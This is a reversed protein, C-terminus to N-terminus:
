GHVKLAAAEIAATPLPMAAAECVRLVDRHTAQEVLAAYQGSSNTEAVLLMGCRASFERLADGALPWMLRPFIGGARMGSESLRKIANKAAGVTSGWSVIGVELDGEPGVVEPAPWRALLTELKRQRKRQMRTHVPGSYNPLGHEDHELGTIPHVLEPMGPYARPSVGTETIAYRAYPEPTPTALFDEYVGFRDAAERSWVVDEMRSSLFFDFLVIVPTQFAEAVEFAKLVLAYCEEVNTPALVPRPSEGSAGFIAINLDSQETKTPLGTSPGGRQCDIIVAPVEAMVGLNICEVMLCLGPGSTATACRKGAFGGGVVHGIASIEDETQVVVGGTAPLKKGLVEMIKTAPTIPYGAYLRLGADVCGQAAAENGSVISVNEVRALAVNGFDIPDAKDLERAACEWGLNFAAINTERVTESKGGFRKGIAWRFGDADLGFLWSVVGLAVINRSKAGKTAEASLDRLPVGYGIMGPQLWGAVAQDEEHYDAPRSDYIVIGNGRLSALETISHPDDLAVLCDGMTGPTLVREVSIRSHAVSKGFGRIEAPFSDFNMVHYGMGAAALNLIQGAAISGDGAAGCIKIVVDSSAPGTTESVAM